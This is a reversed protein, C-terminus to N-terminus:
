RGILLKMLVRNHRNRHGEKDNFIDTQSKELVNM